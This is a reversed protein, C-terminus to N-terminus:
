LLADRIRIEPLVLSPGLLQQLPAPAEFVIAVQRCRQPAADLIERDEDLPEFRPLRYQLVEGASEVLQRRLHIGAFRLLHEAPFV